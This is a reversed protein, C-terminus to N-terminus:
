SKVRVAESWPGWVGASDQARVQAGYNKAGKSLGRIRLTTGQAQGTAVESCSACEVQVEYNIAGDRRDWAFDIYRLGKDSGSKTKRLNTPAKLPPNTVTVAVSGVATAGADDTVTLQAAYTGAAAFTVAKPKAADSTSGNGFDWEYTLLPAKAMDPEDVVEASFTVALPSPGTAPSASVSLTPTRNVVAVDSRATAAQGADDTVTLRVEFGAGKSLADYVKTPNAERSTTGDGFDWEYSVVKGGFAEDGSDGSGKSSFAVKQGRHVKTGGAPSAIVAVPANDRANIVVSTSASRGTRTTSVTLTAVFTGAKEYVHGVSVGEGGSGDGFDWEYTLEEGLPDSSSSADFGVKLPRAGETPDAVAVAFPADPDREGPDSRLTATLAVQDLQGTTIRLAVRSCEDSALRAVFAEDKKLEPFSKAELEALTAVTTCTADTGGDIVDGVLEQEAFAPAGPSSCQARVLRSSDEAPDPVTAYVTHREGSVLALLPRAGKAVPICDELHAGAVWARDANLVDRNFQTRLIGLSAGSLNRQSVDRQQTMVLSTWGLVPAVMLTSLTLAILTELMTM